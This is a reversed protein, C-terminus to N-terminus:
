ATHYQLTSSHTFYIKMIRAAWAVFRGQENYKDANALIVFSTEQLLDQAEAVNNALSLAINLLTKQNKELKECVLFRKSREM